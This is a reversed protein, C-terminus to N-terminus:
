STGPGHSSVTFGSPTPSPKDRQRPWDLRAPRVRLVAPPEPPLRRAAGGDAAPAHADKLCMGGEVRYSASASATVDRNGRGGSGRAWGDPQVLRQTVPVAGEKPVVGTLIHFQGSAGRVVLRFDGRYCIGECVM